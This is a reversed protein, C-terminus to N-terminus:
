VLMLRTRVNELKIGSGIGSSGSKGKGPLDTSATAAPPAEPAAARAVVRFCRERRPQPLAAHQQHRLVQPQLHLHPVQLRSAAVSLPQMPVAPFPPPHPHCHCDCRCRHRRREWQM